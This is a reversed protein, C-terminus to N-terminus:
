SCIADLVITDCSSLRGRQGLSLDLPDMVIKDSRILRTKLRLIHQTLPEFKRQRSYNRLSARTKQKDLLLKETAEKIERQSFGANALMKERVASPIRLQCKSRRECEGGEIRTSEYEDIGTSTAPEYEWGLSIPPGESTSPSNGLTVPYERMEVKNFRVHHSPRTAKLFTGSKFKAQLLLSEEHTRVSLSSTHELKPSMSSTSQSKVVKDAECVGHDAIDLNLEMVDDTLCIVCDPKDGNQEETLITPM